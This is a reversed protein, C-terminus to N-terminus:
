WQVSALQAYPQTRRAQYQVLSSVSPEETHTILQTLTSTTQIPRTVSALQWRQMNTQNVSFYLSQSKLCAPTSSCFRTGESLTQDSFTASRSLHKFHLGLFLHDSYSYCNLPPLFGYIYIYIYGKHMNYIYIYAYLLAKIFMIPLLFLLIYINILFIVQKNIPVCVNRSMCPKKLNKLYPKM